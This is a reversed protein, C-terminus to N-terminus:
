TVSTKEWQKQEGKEIMSAMYQYRHYRNDPISMCLNNKISLSIITMLIKMHAIMPCPEIDIDKSEM